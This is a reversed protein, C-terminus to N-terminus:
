FCAMKAYKSEKLIPGNQIEVDFLHLKQYRQTINGKEDIWILTNKVKNGGEAPEHIGVSISLKAEKAEHQLGLVFESEATSKVLSVTEAATSAIYDSAEPLFLAKAM